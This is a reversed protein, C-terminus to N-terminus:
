MYIYMYIHIYIYIYIHICIYAVRHHDTPHQPRAQSTLCAAGGGRTWGSLNRTGPEPIQSNPDSNEPEPNRIKPNRTEPKAQSTLCAAGGGPTWGPEPNQFGLDPIRIKLNRNRTGFKRTAPGPNQRHRWVLLAGGVRGAMRGRRGGRRAHQARRDLVLPLHYIISLVCFLIVIPSYYIISSPYYVLWIPSLLRYIISM